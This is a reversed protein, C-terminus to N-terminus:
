MGASEYHRMGQVWKSSLTTLNIRVKPIRLQPVATSRISLNFTDWFHIVTILDVFVTLQSIQVLSFTFMCCFGPHIATPFTLIHISVMIVFHFIYIYRYLKSPVLPGTCGLCTGTCSAQFNATASTYRYMM